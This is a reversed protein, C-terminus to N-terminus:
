KTKGEKWDSLIITGEVPELVTSLIEKREKLPKNSLIEGNLMLVDFVCLM